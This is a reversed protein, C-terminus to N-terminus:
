YVGPIFRRVRVAYDGYDPYRERLWREERAAKRDFFVALVAAGVAAVLSMWALAWGLAGFMLGTYIPHRMYRYVGRTVLVADRRPKPYPTLSSGLSLLGAAAIAGGAGMALVGVLQLPSVFGRGAHSTWPALFFIATLMVVQAAVWWGGRERFSHQVTVGANNGPALDTAM